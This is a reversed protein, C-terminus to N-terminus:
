FNGQFENKNSHREYGRGARVDNDWNGEYQRGSSYIM